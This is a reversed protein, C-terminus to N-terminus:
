KPTATSLKANLENAVAAAVRLNVKPGFHWGDYARDVDVPPIKLFHPLLDICLIPEACVFSVMKQWSEMNRQGGSGDWWRPEIPLIVLAFAAGDVLAQRHMAAFIARSVELAEAQPNMLGNRLRREQERWLARSLLKYLILKGVLAPEEYKAPFYLRDYSRLYKRLEPSLGSGNRRWLDFPDAYLPLVLKLEGGQLIFRPMLPMDWRPDYLQRLTNIDRWLDAEPVFVLLALDYKLRERIQRYHLLSQAMNYGDVAFNLVELDRHRDNMVSPWASEQPLRSGHAFSEGFVLVRRRGSPLAQGVNQRARAGLNNSQWWGNTSTVNEQYSYGLIPDLRFHGWLDGRTLKHGDITEDDLPAAPDLLQRVDSRNVIQVPPLELGALTGCATASSKITWRSVLEIFLLCITTALIVLLLNLSTKQKM